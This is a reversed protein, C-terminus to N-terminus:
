PINEWEQLLLTELQQKSRIDYKELRRKLESWLHEIPNIDPFQPPTQLLHPVKFAIWQRVIYACHACHKPDNDHQFYYNNPLNLKQVSQELNNKLINLYVFRDMIGRIIELRGTASGSMCGWVLVNGGGHKVTGQTYKPLYREGTHRWVYKRGDSGRINFKSEDSFLVSKWFDTSKNIYQKAFELRKKKYIASIYPKKAAVRAKIHLRNLARSVTTRHVVTGFHTELQNKLQRLSTQPEKNVTRAIYRQEGRKIKRPRGSRSKNKTTNTSSFRKVVSEITSRSRKVINSIEGYSKGEKHLSIIINREGESLEKRKNSLM